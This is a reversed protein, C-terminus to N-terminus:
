KGALIGALTEPDDVMLGDVGLDVIQQMQEAGFVDWVHIKLGFKTARAIFEPTLVELGEFRPPVQLFQARPTYESEAEPSLFFFEVVEDLAFATRVDPAARRFEAITAADFSAVVVRDRMNMETLVQDFADVISPDEQKIEIVMYQDSFEDFVERLTPIKVGKGRFPYTAGGDTTHNYGADLAAAEAYTMENIRGSGDTTRNVRGDHLLVLVGDSTEQLDMELIDAGVDLASHWAELTQEPALINGGRHAINLQREGLLPNEAVGGDDDGGCGLAALAFALSLVITLTKAQM